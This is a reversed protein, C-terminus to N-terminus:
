LCLRCALVSFPGAALPLRKGLVPGLIYLNDEFPLSRQCIRCIESSFGYEAVVLEVQQYTNVRYFAGYVVLVSGMLKM